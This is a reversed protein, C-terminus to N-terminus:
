EGEGGRNNKILVTSLYDLDKGLMSALDDTWFEDHFGCRTALFARGSSSKSKLADAIQEVHKGAKMLILNDYQALYNELTERNKPAPAILLSEEGEALAEQLRAAVLHIASIGPIIEVEMEPALRRIYKLLYTFTSYLTPDGLTIFAGSRGAAMLEVVQQAAQQWHRALEDRDRTMPLILDVVQWERPIAQAAISLALSRKESRSKPVFLLDIDELVRLAKLTLLEPDGPGVGIGYFKGWTM